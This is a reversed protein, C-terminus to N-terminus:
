HAQIGLRSPASRSQTLILEAHRRKLSLQPCFGFRLRLGEVLLDQASAAASSRLGLCVRREADRHHRKFSRPWWGRLRWAGTLRRENSALPIQRTKPFPPVAGHGAAPAQDDQDPFCADALTAEHGLQHGGGALTASTHQNPAAVLRLSDQGERRPNVREPRGLDHVLLLEEVGQLRAPPGLQSANEGLEWSRRM